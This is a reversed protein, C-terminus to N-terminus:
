GLRSGGVRRDESHDDTANVVVGGRGSSDDFQLVDGKTSRQNEFTIFPFFLLKGKCFNERPDIQNRLLYKYQDLKHSKYSAGLSSHFYFRNGASTSGLIDRVATANESM